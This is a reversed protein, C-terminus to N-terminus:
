IPLSEECLEDALAAESDHEPAKVSHPAYFPRVFPWQPESGVHTAWPSPRRRASRRVADREITVSNPTSVSGNM